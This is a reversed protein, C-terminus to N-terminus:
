RMRSHMWGRLTQLRRSDAVVAVLLEDLPQDRVVEASQKALQGRQGLQEGLARNQQTPRRLQRDHHLHVFQRLGLLGPRRQRLELTRGDALPNGHPKDRPALSKPQVGRSDCELSRPPVLGVDVALAPQDLLGEGAV